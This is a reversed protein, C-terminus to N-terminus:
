KVMRSLKAFDETGATNNLMFLLMEVSGVMVGAQRMVELSLEWNLKARSCVADASVFVRKGMEMLGFSTQLICIHSEMGCLLVDRRGFEEIATRFAPVDCCNFAVKEIPEIEPILDKIEPVTHRLGQPYQELLIVPYGFERAAKVLIGANRLIQPRVEEPMAALLREQIDIVVLVVEQAKPFFRSTDDM